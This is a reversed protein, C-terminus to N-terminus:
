GVYTITVSSQGVSTHTLQHDSFLDLLTSNGPGLTTGDSRVASADTFTVSGFNAFPATEHDIEFDEVIWEADTMCLADDSSLAQSVSQGTTLNEIVATGTTVSTVDITFRLKDGTHIALDNSFSFSDDPFWEYWADYSVRGGPAVIIDIGTQWIADTCESYGDIGVWASSYYTTGSTAGPPARAGPVVITGSVHNFTGSPFDHYAAGTWDDSQENHTSINAAVLTKDILKLPRTRHSAPRARPRANASLANRKGASPPACSVTSLAALLSLALALM